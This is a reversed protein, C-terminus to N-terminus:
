AIQTYPDWIKIQWVHLGMLNEKLMGMCTAVSDLNLKWSMLM